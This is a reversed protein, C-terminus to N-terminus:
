IGDNDVPVGDIVFLPDNSARLSSGGRIRITAGDGPAGGGSTIQVGAIKGSVLETPTTLTGRNFDKSGVATVSGTADERKQVGYGIVVLEDLYTNQQGLAVNVTTNPQALVEQSEYGIFSFVLTANPSITISYNGDIDTVTGQLTGKVQIAAGPLTGGEKADTVVGQVVGTQAYGASFGFVLMSLLLIMKATLHKGM